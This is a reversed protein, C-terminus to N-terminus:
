LLTRDVKVCFLDTKENLNKTPDDLSGTRGMAYVYDGCVALSNVYIPFTGDEFYIPGHDCYKKDKLNYTVLHLNELGKAEGKKTDKGKITEGTGLVIPGGTLYYIINDVCTFGLYGYSFLDFMGSRQSPISTLRTIINLEDNMKTGGFTSAPYFAFLYGSNGHVGLVCNNTANWCVQRWNYSMSGPKTHDYTGFYDRKMGGEFSVSVTKNTYDYKLIDGKANTFYVNGDIPSVVMSRCICRYNGTRPHQSEGEGRGDYDYKVPADYTYTILGHDDKRIANVMVFYGSPWTLGYLNGSNSCRAFTLLGEGDQLRAINEYTQSIPDYALFCGGNYKKYGDPLGSSIPLTEMGDVFTYFGVHTGFYLKKTEVDEFFPVHSKGQAITSGDDDGCANTLDGIYQPKPLLMNNNNTVNHNLGVADISYMKAGINHYVSCLVYYIKNRDANTGIGNYSDHAQTFNSDFKIAKLRSNCADLSQKTANLIYDEAEQSIRQFKGYVRFANCVEYGGYPYEAKTPFYGHCGNAYGVCITNQFPSFTKIKLEYESFMEGPYFALALNKGLAITNVNFQMTSQKMNDNVREQVRKVLELSYECCSVPARLVDEITPLSEEYERKREKEKKNDDNNHESTSSTGANAITTTSTTTTTTTTTSIATPKPTHLYKNQQHFTKEAEQVWENQQNAFKLAEEKTPLPELPLNLTMSMCKIYPQIEDYNSNHYGQQRTKNIAEVLRKGLAEGIKRAGHYGSRHDIPNIDGCCGNLYMTVPENKYQSSIYQCLHGCYDASELTKKGVCTPHMSYTVIIGHLTKPLEVWSSGHLAAYTSYMEFVLAEAYPIIPGELRQGLITKGSIEFWKLNPNINNNNNNDNNCRQRRNIAIDEFDRTKVYYIRCYERNKIADNVTLVITEILELMYKDTAHGMGIFYQNTQPGTHTHTCSVVIRDEYAFSSPWNLAIAIEKQCKKAFEASTGILDLSILIVPMDNYSPPLNEKTIKEVAGPVKTEYIYTATCYLNDHIGTCKGRGWYGGLFGKGQNIKTKAFGTIYCPKGTNDHLM